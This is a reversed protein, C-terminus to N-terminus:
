DTTDDTEPRRVADLLSKLTETPVESLNIHEGKSTHDIETKDRWKDSKRNKLWFQQNRFDGPITETVEVVEIRETERIKKGNEPNYEIDKVKMPVERVVPRDHAGKFLNEAVSIDAIEKGRRISDMFEPFDLKWKNITSVAQGLFKAIDKDTAGLLCIRYVLDCYETKYDTPRGRNTGDKAM